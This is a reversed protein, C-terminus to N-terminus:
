PAAAGDAIVSVGQARVAAAPIDADRMLRGLAERKSAGAVLFLAQKAACLVPM